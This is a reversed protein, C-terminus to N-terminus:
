RATLGESLDILNKVLPSANYLTSQLKGSQEPSSSLREYAALIEIATARLRDYYSPVSLLHRQHTLYFDLVRVPLMKAGSPLKYHMDHELCHKLRDLEDCYLDITSFLVEIVRIDQYVHTDPVVATAWRAIAEDYQSAPQTTQQLFADLKRQLWQKLSSM